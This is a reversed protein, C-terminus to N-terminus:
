ETNLFFIIRKKGKISIKEERISEEKISNKKRRCATLSFFYELLELTEKLTIIFQCTQIMFHLLIHPEQSREIRAM